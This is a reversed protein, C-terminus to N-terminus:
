SFGVMLQCVVTNIFWLLRDFMMAYNVPNQPPQSNSEPRVLVWPRFIVPSFTSGKYNYRSITLSELRRPYPSYVTPEKACDKVTWVCVFFFMPISFFGCVILLDQDQHEPWADNRESWNRTFHIQIYLLTFAPYLIM